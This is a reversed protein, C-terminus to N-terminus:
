GVQDEPCATEADIPSGPDRTDGGRTEFAVDGEQWMWFCALMGTSFDASATDGPLVTVSVPSTASWVGVECWGDMATTPDVDFGAVSQDEPPPSTVRAVYDGPPVSAFVFTGDAATTTSAVVVLDLTLLEVLAGAVPLEAPPLGPLDFYDAM